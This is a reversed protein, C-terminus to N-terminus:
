TATMSSRFSSRSRYRGTLSLVSLISCRLGKYCVQPRRLLQSLKIGTSLPETGAAELYANLEASPALNVHSIRKIERDIQREKELLANYREDSILGTRHGIPTLRIDANDQRLLLRYESRSTMM